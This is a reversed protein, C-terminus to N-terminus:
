LDLEGEELEKPHLKSELHTITKIHMYKEEEYMHIQDNKLELDKELSSIQQQLITVGSNFNDDKLKQNEELLSQNQEQFNSLTEILAKGTHSEANFNSAM